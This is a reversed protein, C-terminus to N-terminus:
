LFYKNYKNTLEHYNFKQNFVKFSNKSFIKMKKKNSLMKNIKSNLSSMSNKKFLYGNFNNKVLESNGAFNSAIIPLKMCMAERIVFPFDDDQNSCHLLCNFINYYEFINKKYSLIKVLKDLKFRNIKKVLTNKLEGEGIILFFVNANEYSAKNKIITNILMEVGKRVSLEGVIGFIFSKKNIKNIEKKIVEKKKFIKKKEFRNPLVKIKERNINVRKNLIKKTFNSAVLFNNVGLNIIKDVPLDFKRKISRYDRAINNVYMSIKMKKKFLSYFIAIIAFSRSTRAGPYGGNNIFIEDPKIKDIEKYIQFGDLINFLFEFYYFFFKTLSNKLIIKEHSYELSNINKKKTNIKEKLVKTYNPNKKYTFYFKFKKNLAKNNLFFPIINESGSFIYCDSYILIKKIM